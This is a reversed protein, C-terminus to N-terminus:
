DSVEFDEIDSVEFDEIISNFAENTEKRMKKLSRGDNLAEEKRKESQSERIESETFNICNIFSEENFHVKIINMLDSVQKSEPYFQTKKKYNINEYVEIQNKIAIKKQEIAFSNDREYNDIKKGEEDYWKSIEKDQKQYSKYIKASQRSYSDDYDKNRYANSLSAEKTDRQERTREYKEDYQASIKQRKGEVEDRLRDEEHGLKELASKLALYNHDANLQLKTTETHDTFKFITSYPKSYKKDDEYGEFNIYNDGTKDDETKYFTLHTLLENGYPIWKASVEPIDYRSEVIERNQLINSIWTFIKKHNIECVTSLVARAWRKQQTLPLKYEKLADSIDSISKLNEAFFTPNQLGRKKKENEILDEIERIKFAIDRQKDQWSSLYINDSIPRLLVLLPSQNLYSELEKLFTADQVYKKKKELDEVSLSSILKDNFNDNVFKYFTDHIEEAYAKRLHDLDSYSYIAAINVNDIREAPTKLIISFIDQRDNQNIEQNFPSSMKTLRGQDIWRDLVGPDTKNRLIGILKEKNKDAPSKTIVLSSFEENRSNPLLNRTTNILEKLLTGRGATIEDYGAVFILRATKASEIINKIFIANVLSISTGRTDGFGPLDYLILNNINALKPLLTESRSSTGIRMATADSPNSLIINDEDDVKLNKNVLYNILTSKGSGTKGLFVVVDKDKSSHLLQPNKELHNKVITRLLSRDDMAISPNGKICDSNVIEHESFVRVQKNSVISDLLRLRLNTVIDFNNNLSLGSVELFNSQEDLTLVVIKNNYDQGLSIEQRITDRLYQDKQKFVPRIEDRQNHLLSYADIDFYSQSGREHRKIELRLLPSFSLIEKKEENTCDEYFKTWSAKAELSLCFFVLLLSFVKKM